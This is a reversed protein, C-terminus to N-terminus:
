TERSWSGRLPSTGDGRVPIYGGEEQKRETFSDETYELGRGDGWGQLTM